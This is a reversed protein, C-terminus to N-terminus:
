KVDGSVPRPWLKARKIIEPILEEAEIAQIHVGRVGKIARVQEILEVTVKLGEEKRDSAQEMRKILEEPVKVGAVNKNMYKLM